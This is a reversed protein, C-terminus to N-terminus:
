IDPIIELQEEIPLELFTDFEEYFEESSYGFALNFAGEFGLSSLNPYFTDTLINQNGVKNILYAVAWSGLSYAAQRCNDSGKIRSFEIDPCLNYHYKGDGMAGRMGNRLGGTWKNSPFISIGEDQLKYVTYIGMYQAAGEMMWIADDPKTRTNREERSLNFVSALQVVHFYEHVITFYDDGFPRCDFSDDFGMLYTTRMDHFGWQFGGSHSGDVRCEGNQIADRGAKASNLFDDERGILCDQKEWHNLNDRRECYLNLLEQAAAEETGLSWFEVPGYKGYRDAATKLANNLSERIYQPVDSAFFASPYFDVLEGIYSKSTDYNFLLPDNNISNISLFQAELEINANLNLSINASTSNSGIWGGFVYGVNPTAIIEIETGEEYTGGESSVTGGEGTTVKLTYQTPATPEFQAQITQNSNLTITLTENTSDSGEWGVFEYGEAPTATITVETGEDYTGGESSVTGGSTASVTLIYKVTNTPVLTEEDDGGGCSILILGLFFLTLKKM